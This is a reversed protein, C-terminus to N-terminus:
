SFWRLSITNQNYGCVHPEWALTNTLIFLELRFVAESIVTHSARRPQTMNKIPFTLERGAGRVGLAWAQGYHTHAGLTCMFVITPLPPPPTQTPPTM